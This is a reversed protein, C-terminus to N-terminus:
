QVNEPEPMVEGISYGLRKMARDPSVLSCIIYERGAKSTRHLVEIFFESPTTEMSSIISIIHEFSERFTKSQGSFVECTTADQLSVCTISNGSKDKTDYICWNGVCILESNAVNKLSKIAPSELLDYTEYADFTKNTNILTFERNM